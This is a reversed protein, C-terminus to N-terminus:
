KSHKGGGARIWIVGIAICLGGLLMGEVRFMWWPNVNFLNAAVGASLLVATWALYFWAIAMHVRRRTPKLARFPPDDDPDPKAVPQDM